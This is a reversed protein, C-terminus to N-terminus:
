EYRLASVPRATAVRFAHFLVTVPAITLAIGTAAVFVWLRLEVHAAFGHLWRSMFSWDVPWAIVNAWLVPKTFQWLLLKMIDFRNKGM